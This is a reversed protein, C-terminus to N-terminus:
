FQRDQLIATKGELHDVYSLSGLRFRLLLPNGRKDNKHEFKCFFPLNEANFRPYFSSSKIKTPSILALRFFTELRINATISDKKQGYSSLTFLLIGFFILNRYKKM